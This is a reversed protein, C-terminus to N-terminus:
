LSDYNVSTKSKKRTKNKRNGKFQCIYEYIKDLKKYGFSGLIINKGNLMKLYKKLQVSDSKSLNRIKESLELIKRRKYETIVIERIFGSKFNDPHSGNDVYRQALIEFGSSQYLEEKFRQLIQEKM